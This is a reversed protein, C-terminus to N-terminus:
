VADAYTTLECSTAPLMTGGTVNPMGTMGASVSEPVVANPLTATPVDLVGLTIVTVLLVAAGTATDEIVVVFACNTAVWLQPALM